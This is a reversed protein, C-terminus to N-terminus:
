KSKSFTVVKGDIKYTLDMVASFLDLVDEVPLDKIQMAIRTSKNINEPLHVEINYWREIQNIVEYVPTNSFYKERNLWSVYDNVNAFEPKAPIGGEALTSVQGEILVVKDKGGSGESHLSVKGEVLAVDVRKNIEWASVNFKTGLVTVVANEAHVVFPKNKNKSVEFYGEGSLYVERKTGDFKEPYKFKSGADLTVTTGDALKVKQINKFDVDVEIMKTSNFVDTFYFVAGIVIVFLAAARIFQPTFITQFFSRGEREHKISYIKAQGTQGDLKLREKVIQLAKATDPKPFHVDPTNWIKLIIEYDRKNEESERIWSNLSREEEASTEGKFHKLLIEWDINSM